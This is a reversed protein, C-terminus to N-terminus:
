RLPRAADLRELKAHANALLPRQFGPFDIKETLAARLNLKKALLEDTTPQDTWKSIPRYVISKTQGDSALLDAEAKLLSGRRPLSAELKM